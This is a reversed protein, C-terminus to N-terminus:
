QPDSKQNRVREWRGNKVEFLQGTSGYACEGDPLGIASRMPPWDPAEGHGVNVGYSKSDSM